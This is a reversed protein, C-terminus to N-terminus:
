QRTSPTAALPVTVGPVTSDNVVSAGIASKICSVHTAVSANFRDSGPSASHPEGRV